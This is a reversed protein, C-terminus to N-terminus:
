LLVVQGLNAKGFPLFFDNLSTIIGLYIIKFKTKKDGEWRSSSCFLYEIKIVIPHAKGDV